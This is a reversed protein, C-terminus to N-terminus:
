SGEYRKEVTECLGSIFDKVAGDNRLTSELKRVDSALVHDCFITAIWRSFDHYQSHNILVDPSVRTAAEALHSLTAASEGVRKRDTTFVFEHDKSVAIDYYKTRHRVHATM